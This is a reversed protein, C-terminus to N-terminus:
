DVHLYCLAWRFYLASEEVGLMKLAITM